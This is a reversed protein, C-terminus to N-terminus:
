ESALCQDCVGGVYIDYSTIKMSHLMPIDAKAPLPFDIIRGCKVCRFHGHERSEALDYRINVPDIKIEKLLGVETLSKLTSYITTLSLTPFRDILGDRITAADPHDHHQWVYEYVALRQPTPKIGKDILKDALLTIINDKDCHIDM